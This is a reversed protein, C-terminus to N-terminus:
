LFRPQKKYFLFFQKCKVTNHYFCLHYGMEVLFIGSFVQGHRMNEGPVKGSSIVDNMNRDFGM